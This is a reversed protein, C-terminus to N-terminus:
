QTVSSLNNSEQETLERFEGGSLTQDLLIPGISLRHLSTVSSGLAAFMRKVQHFKGESITLFAELAGDAYELRAPLCVYGEDIPLGRAIREAADPPLPESLRAYYRKEVHSAPSIVRHILEGNNTLLLLGTADKDLRGAPKLDLLRYRGTLLDAATRDGRADETASLVGAPKNMMVLVFRKYVLKEGCFCVEAATEDIKEEPSRCVRGDVSARGRRIAAKLESRTGLGLDALYRDLRLM